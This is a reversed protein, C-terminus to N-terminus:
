YIRLLHQVQDREELLEKETQKIREEMLSDFQFGGRIQYYGNGQSILPYSFVIEPDIGYPNNKGLVGSCYPHGQVEELSKVADIIAQAASGASSKGRARIVEAGRTQIMPIYENELYNRDLYDSIPKKFCTTNVVDPVQTSSHNGWIVMNHISHIPQQLKKALHSVARNYDLRTMAHFHAANIRRLQHIAVLCNTNCPNGVVLVQVTKKAHKDIAQGQHVFINANELILEKREMGPGRPKSGILLAYDVDQFAEEPKHTVTVKELLPYAGDELEMALGKLPEVMSEIELLHLEIPQQLGFLEGAAIRFILSYAIQGSAGTIAIKKAVKKM